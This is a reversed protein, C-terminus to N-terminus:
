VVLEKKERLRRVHRVSLHLMACVEDTELIPTGFLVNRHRRLFQFDVHLEKVMAHIEALQTKEDQEM